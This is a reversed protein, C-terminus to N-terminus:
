NYLFKESFEVSKCIIALISMRHQKAHNIYSEYATITIANNSDGTGFIDNGLENPHNLKAIRASIRNPVVEIDLDSIITKIREVEKPCFKVVGSTFENLKNYASQCIIKRKYKKIQDMIFKKNQCVDKYSSTGTVCRRIISDAVIYDEPLNSLESCITIIVNVDINLTEINQYHIDFSPPPLPVDHITKIKIGFKNIYNIVENNPLDNFIVYMEPKQDFPLYRIIDTDNKFKEMEELICYNGYYDPDVSNNVIEISRSIIKIWRYGNQCIIYTNVGKGINPEFNSNKISFLVFENESKFINVYIQYYNIYNFSNPNKTAMYKIKNNEYNGILSKKADLLDNFQYKEFLKDLENELNTQIKIIDNLSEDVIDSNM